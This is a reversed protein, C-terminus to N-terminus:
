YSPAEGTKKKKESRRRQLRDHPEPIFDFVGKRSKKEERERQQEAGTEDCMCM